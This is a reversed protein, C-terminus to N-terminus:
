IQRNRLWEESDDDDDIPGYDDYNVNMLDKDHSLETEETAEHQLRTLNGQMRVSKIIYDTVTNGDMKSLEKVEDYFDDDVRISLRKKRGDEKKPRGRKVEGGLKEKNEEM